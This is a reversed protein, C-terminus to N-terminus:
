PISPMLPSFGKLGNTMGKWVYIVKESLRRDRKSGDRALIWKSEERRWLYQKAVKQRLTALFPTRWLPPARIVKTPRSLLLIIIAALYSILTFSWLFFHWSSASPVLIGGPASLNNKYLHKQHQTATRRIISRWGEIGPSHKVM